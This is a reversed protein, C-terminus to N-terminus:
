EYPNVKKFIINNAEKNDIVCSGLDIPKHCRPVSFYCSFCRNHNSVKSNEVRLETGNFNFTEGVKIDM